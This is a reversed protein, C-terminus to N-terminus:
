LRFSQKFLKKLAEADQPGPVTGVKTGDPGFLVLTNSGVGHTQAFQKGEDRNLDALLFEIRGEYDDRVGNFAEMLDLSSVSNPDFVQVVAPKGKGILALDVSYGRPLNLVAIGIAVFIVVIALLKPWVRTQAIKYGYGAPDNQNPNEM